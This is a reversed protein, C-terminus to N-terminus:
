YPYCDEDSPRDNESGFELCMDRRAACARRRAEEEGYKLVSFAKTSRKGMYRLSAEWIYGKNLGQYNRCVGPYKGDKKTNICTMNQHNEGPNTIRLNCMRNDLRDRSRHDSMEFGTLMKHFLVTKGKIGCVAYGYENVFWIHSQALAIAEDSRDFKMIYVRRKTPIRDRYVIEMEFSEPDEGDRIANKVWHKAINKARKGYKAVFERGLVVDPRLKVPEIFTKGPMKSIRRPCFGIVKLYCIVRLFHLNLM